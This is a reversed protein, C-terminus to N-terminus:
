EFQNNPSKDVALDVDLLMKEMRSYDRIVKVAIVCLIIGILNEAIAGATGYIFEDLTEASRSYRFVVQSIANDAIWLVWWVIVVDTGFSEQTAAGKEILYGKTMQYMERMIQFPRFLNLIPVFWAGAAWGESYSLFKARLHLNFYARRFWSIFTVVSIVFAVFYVVGVIKIRLDNAEAVETSVEGGDAVSKLLIFQVTYMGLSIVELGLVIWLLVMALNARQGNPRLNMM